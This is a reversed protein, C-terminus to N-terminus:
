DIEKKLGATKFFIKPRWSAADRESSVLSLIANETTLDPVSDFSVEVKRKAKM